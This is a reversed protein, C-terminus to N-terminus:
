KLANAVAEALHQRFDGAEIKSSEARNSLFGGEVLIAPRHHGHLVGMFRARRVGRDEEGSARLVARHIRVALQFNEGDYGNNPFWQSLPDPNGRTLTSAMGQPTLCYTELGSEKKDPAASNFHLSIFVDAHHSEAFAVRNSLSVDVDTTRTLYVTWGNSVLLPALRRAWDLTFEKETHGDFTCITGANIGGHGPDIVIVRNTSNFALPADTLLPEFSKRLDLGHVFVQGDIFEPPFGFHITAGNWTAERSGIALVMAGHPSSVTYTTLPSKSLLLPATLKQEATWRNLSTYAYIIPPKVFKAMPQNTRIVPANTALNNTPA